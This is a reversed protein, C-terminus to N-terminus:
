PSRFNTTGISRTRYCFAERADTRQEISVRDHESRYDEQGPAPYVWLRHEGEPAARAENTTGAGEM